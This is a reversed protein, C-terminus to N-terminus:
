LSAPSQYWALIEDAFSDFNKPANYHQMWNLRAQKRKELLQEKSKGVSILADAIEEPSPNKPLLVGVEGNVIEAVAGVNTAITAIGCSQAEMISVPIGETRSTNIFCDIPTTRYFELLKQNDVHGHFIWEVQEGLNKGAMDTLEPKLPGDGFHHWIIRDYLKRESLAKLGAILLDIRKEPVLFSTSVLTLSRATNDPNLFQPDNVGLRSTSIHHIFDGYDQLLRGRAHDSITYIADITKLTQERLPLYSPTYDEIYIEFSHARSIQTLKPYKRQKLLHIGHAQVHLWYTYFVSTTYSPNKALFDTLWLYYFESQSVFYFLCKLHKPKLLLSLDRRLERYTESSWLATWVRKFKFLPSTSHYSRAFSEEIRIGKPLSRHLEGLQNPVIVIEDFTKQLSYLEQELFNEVQGFPFQHTFLIVRKVGQEKETM